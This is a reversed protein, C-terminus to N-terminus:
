GTSDGPQQAPQPPPPTAPNPAPEAIEFRPSTENHQFDDTPPEARVVGYHDQSPDDSLRSPRPPVAPPLEDDEYAEHFPDADPM